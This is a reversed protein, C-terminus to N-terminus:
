SSPRDMFATALHTLCSCFYSSLQCRARARPTCPRAMRRCCGRKWASPTRPGQGQRRRIHCRCSMVLKVSCLRRNGCPMCSRCSARVPQYIPPTHSMCVELGLRTAYEHLVALATKNQANPFAEYAQMLQRCRPYEEEPLRGPKAAPAHAAAGHPQVELTGQMPAAADGAGLGQQPMSPQQQWHLPQLQAPGAAPKLGVAGAQMQQVGEMPGASPHVAGPPPHQVHQMGRMPAATGYTEQQQQQLSPPQQLHQAEPMAGLHPGMGLLSPGIISGPTPRQAPAATAGAPPPEVRHM